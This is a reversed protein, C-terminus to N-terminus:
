INGTRRVFIFFYFIILNCTNNINFIERGLCVFAWVVTSFDEKLYSRVHVKYNPIMKILDNIRVDTGVVGLLKDDQNKEVGRQLLM